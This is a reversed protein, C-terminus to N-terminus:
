DDTTTTVSHTTVDVRPGFSKLVATERDHGEATMGDVDVMVLGVHPCYLSAVTRPLAADRSEEVTRLCGVFKGAPVNAAEDTSEVRVMGTRGRWTNGKTLPAKLLYGGEVYAIGDPVFQLRETRSGMHLDVRGTRPRTVQVILLGQANRLESHTDYSFVTGDELPLYREMEPSADTEAVSSSNKPEPPSGCGAAGFGFVAAVVVGQLTGPGSRRGVMKGCM